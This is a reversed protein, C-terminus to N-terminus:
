VQGEVLYYLAYSCADYLHGATNNEDNPEDSDKKFSLTKLEEILQTNNKTIQLIHEGKANRCLANAVAYRRLRQPNKSSAVINYLGCQQLLQRNTLGDGQNRNKGSTDDVIWLRPWDKPPYKAIIAKGLDITTKSKYITDFVIIKNTTADRQMFIAPNYDLNYDVGVYIPKNYLPIYNDIINEDSFERCVRNQYLDVFEAYLEQRATLEDYESLLREIAEQSITPNYELHYKIKAVGNPCKDSFYDKYLWHQTGKPTTAMILRGNTTLLRGKIVDIAEKCVLAAEDVYANRINLGRILDYNDLSRYYIKNGNILESKHSSYTHSKLLRNAGLINVIPNELLETLSRYSPATVLDAYGSKNKWADIVIQHQLGLTKGSRISSVVIITKNIIDNCARHFLIQGQHPYYNKFQYRM